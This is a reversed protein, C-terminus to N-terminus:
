LDTTTIGVAPIYTSQTSGIPLAASEGCTPRFGDIGFEDVIVVFDHDPETCKTLLTGYYTFNGGSDKCAVRLTVMNKVAGMETNFVYSTSTESFTVKSV